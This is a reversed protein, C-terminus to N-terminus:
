EEAWVETGEMMPLDTAAEVAGDADDGFSFADADALAPEPLDPTPGSGASAAEEEDVLTGATGVVAGPATAEADGDLDVEGYSTAFDAAAEAEAATLVAEFDFEPDLEVIRRELGFARDDQEAEKFARWALGLQQLAEDTRESAA